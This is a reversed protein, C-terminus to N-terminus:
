NQDAAEKKLGARFSVIQKIINPPTIAVSNVIEKLKAGATPALDFKRKAADDLFQKDRVTADFAARMTALAVAPVKPPLVYPRGVAQFAVVADLMQRQEDNKAFEYISPVGAVETSPEKSYHVIPVIKKQEILEYNRSKLSGWQIVGIGNVEGRQMALMSEGSGKYGDVLKLKSGLIANMLPPYESSPGGSGGVVFQKEFVDKFNKVPAEHWVIAVYTDTHLSGIWGLDRADYKTKDPSYLQHTASAPSLAGIVTADGEVINALYNALILSGAGPMNQVVLTPRGPIHRGMHAALLRGYADFGGGTGSGIIMRVSKGKYDNEQAEVAHPLMLIIFGSFAYGLMCNISNPM